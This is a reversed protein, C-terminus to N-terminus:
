QTPEEVREDRFILTVLPRLVQTAQDGWGEKFSTRWQGIASELNSQRLAELGSKLERWIDALDDPISGVAPESAIEFAEFMMTYYSNEAFQVKLSQLIQDYREDSIAPAATEGPAEPLEIVESLLKSILMFCVRIFTVRDSNAAGEIHACLAEATNVFPPRQDSSPSKKPNTWM